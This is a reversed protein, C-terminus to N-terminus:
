TQERSGKRGRRVTEGLNSHSRVGLVLVGSLMPKRWTRLCYLCWLYLKWGFQFCPCNAHVWTYGGTKVTVYSQLLFPICQLSQRQLHEPVIIFSGSIFFLTIRPPSEKQVIFATRSFTSPSLSESEYCADRSKHVYILHFIQKRQFFKAGSTQLQHVVAKAEPSSMCDICVISRRQFFSPM